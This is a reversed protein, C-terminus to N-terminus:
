CNPRRAYLKSFCDGCVFKFRTIETSYLPLSRLIDYEADEAQLDAVEAKIAKIEEDDETYHYHEELWIIRRELVGIRDNKFSRIYKPGLPIANGCRQCKVHSNSIELLEIAELRKRDMQQIEELSPLEVPNSLSLGEKNNDYDTAIIM